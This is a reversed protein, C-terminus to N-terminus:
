GSSYFKSDYLLYQDAKYTVEFFNDWEEQSGSVNLYYLGGDNYWVLATGGVVIETVVKSYISIDTEKSKLKGEDGDFQKLPAMFWYADQKGRINQVIVLPNFSNLFTPPRLFVTSM